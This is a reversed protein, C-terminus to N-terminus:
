IDCMVCENRKRVICDKKRKFRHIKNKLKSTQDCTISNKYLRNASGSMIRNGPGSEGSCFTIADKMALRRAGFLRAAYAVIPPPDGINSYM